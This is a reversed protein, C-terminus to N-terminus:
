AGRHVLLRPHHAPQRPLLSVPGNSGGEAEDDGAKREGAAGVACVDTGLALIQSGFMRRGSSEEVSEM